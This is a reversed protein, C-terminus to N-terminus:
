WLILKRYLVTLNKLSTIKKNKSLYYINFYSIPVAQEGYLFYSSMM